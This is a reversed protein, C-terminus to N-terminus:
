KTTREGRKALPNGVYVGFEDTVGRV